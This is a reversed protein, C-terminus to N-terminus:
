ASVTEPKGKTPKAKLKEIQAKLDANEALLVEREDLQPQVEGRFVRQCRRLFDPSFAGSIRCFEDILPHGM